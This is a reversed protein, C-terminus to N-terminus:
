IKYLAEANKHLIQNAVEEAQRQTLYQNEILNSLHGALQRKIGIAGLYAIEPGTHCGAGYMIKHLPAMSMIEQLNLDNSLATWPCLWSIDAYVNPFNYAMLAHHRLWPHGGHLLVVKLRGLEPRSLYPTLLFPDLTEGVNNKTLDGSTGTHIHIPVGQECCYHALDNFCLMRVKKNAEADGKKAKAFVAEVEAVPIEYAALTAREGIHNKVAIYSKDQLTTSIAELYSKRFDSLRDSKKLEASIIADDPVLRWVKAPMTFPITKNLEQGDFVIASIKAKEYLLGIYGNIDEAIRKNRAEVVAELTDACGFLRSLQAVASVVVPAQAMHQKLNDSTGKTGDSRSGHYFMGSFDWTERNKMGTDHAHSHHDIVPVEALDLRDPKKGAAPTNQAAATGLSGLAGLSALSSLAIFQRRSSSSM